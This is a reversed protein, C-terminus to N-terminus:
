LWRRVVFLAAKKNDAPWNNAPRRQQILQELRSKLPTTIVGSKGTACNLVSEIATEKNLVIVVHGMWVILDLPRLRSLIEDKGLGTVPVAAGFQLLQDTNRPTYGGTAEYLLGSCDLGAFKQQGDVIVGARLNGGWIYPLGVSSRLQNQIAESSPKPKQRSPPEAPSLKLLPKSVYLRVGSRPLYDNTSVQLVLPNDPVSAIIKFATGPLAIFELQRIQGCNDPTPTQGPSAAHPTAYVPTPATAVAFHPLDQALVAQVASVAVFCNIIIKLATTTTLSM